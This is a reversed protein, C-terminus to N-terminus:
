GAHWQRDHGRNAVPQRLFHPSAHRLAFLFAPMTASIPHAALTLSTCSVCVDNDVLLAIVFRAPKLIGGKLTNCPVLM